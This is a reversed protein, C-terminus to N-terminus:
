LDELEMRAPQQRQPAPPLQGSQALAARVARIHKCERNRYQCDGCDCVWGFGATVDISHIEDDDKALGYGVVVGDNDAFAGLDYEATQGNANTISV